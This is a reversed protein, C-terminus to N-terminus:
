TAAASLATASAAAAASDDLTSIESSDSCRVCRMRKPDAVKKRTSESPHFELINYM